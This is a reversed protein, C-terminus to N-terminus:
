PASSIRASQIMRSPAVKYIKKFAKSFTYPDEYGTMFAIEKVSYKKEHLYQLAREMKLHMIYASPTKGITHRFFSSFYKESVGVIEALEKMSISRNWNDSIYQLVPALRQNEILGDDGLSPIRYLSQYELGKALLISFYGKLSLGSFPTEKQYAVYSSLFLNREKRVYSEPIKGEFDFGNLGKYSNGLAAYFFVYILRYPEELVQSRYSVGPYFLFLDGSNLIIKEEEYEIQVKGELIIWCDYNKKAGMENWNLPHTAELCLKIEINLKEFFTMLVTDKACPDM